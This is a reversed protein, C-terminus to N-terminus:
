PAVAVWGLLAAVFACLPVNALATVRNIRRFRAEHATAFWVGDDGTTRGEVAQHFALAYYIELGMSSLLVVVLALGWGDPGAFPRPAGPVMWVLGAGLLVATFVDHAIGMPPRWNKTVFLMVLEVVGRLWMSAAFVLLTGRTAPRLGPLFAFLPALVFWTYVAWTLWLQKARSIAGGMIAGRNQRRAFAAGVAAVVAAGGWIAWTLGGAM